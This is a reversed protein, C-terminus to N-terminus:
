IDWYDRLEEGLESIIKKVNNIQPEYTEPTVDEHIDLERDILGSLISYMGEAVTDPNYGSCSMNVVPINSPYAAERVVEGIRHFGEYTLKLSGLSDSFHPDAGGNRIIIQPEFQKVLPKFVKELVMEMGDNGTYPPLPVNVTYGKGEGEGTEEVFGRGPYISLPDQHVDIFLVRPDKYFIDMTGNGAHVDTDLIMVRENGPLRLFAEACVAVDNFVCFGGGYDPGAHHLGGGVSDVLNYGESVLEVAKLGGGVIYRAGEIIELSLPTDQTLRYKTEALRKVKELYELDHVLLIDQDEAPDQKIQDIEPDKLIEKKGLLKMYKSFRESRFPHGRGFDYKKLNDHYVIAKKKM